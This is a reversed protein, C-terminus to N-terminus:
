MSRQRATTGADRFDSVLGILEQRVFHVGLAANEALLRSRETSLLVMRLFANNLRSLGDVGSDAVDCLAVTEDTAMASDSKM